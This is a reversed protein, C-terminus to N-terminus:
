SKFLLSSNKALTASIDKKVWSNPETVITVSNEGSVGQVLERGTNVQESCKKADADKRSLDSEQSEM